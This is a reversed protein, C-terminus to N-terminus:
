SPQGPREDGSGGDGRLAGFRGAGERNLREVHQVPRHKTGIAIRERASQDQLEGQANLM